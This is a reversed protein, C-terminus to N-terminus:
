DAVYQLGAVCGDIRVRHWVVRARRLITPSNTPQISLTHVSDIALENNCAIRIGDASINLVVGPDSDQTVV